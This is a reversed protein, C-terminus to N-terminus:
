GNRSCTIGLLLLIKRGLGTELLSRVGSRSSSRLPRRSFLLLMRAPDTRSHLLRLVRCIPFLLTRQKCMLPSRRRQNKGHEEGQASNGHHAHHTPSTCGRACLLRDFQPLSALFRARHASRQFVRDTPPTPRASKSDCSLVSLSCKGKIRKSYVESSFM